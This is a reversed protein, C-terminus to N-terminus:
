ANELAPYDNYGVEGGLYFNDPKPANLAAGTKIRVPLDPNAIFSVGFSVADVKKAAVAEEAEKVDYGM